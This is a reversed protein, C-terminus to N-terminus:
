LPILHVDHHFRPSRARLKQVQRDGRALLKERGYPFAGGFKVFGSDFTKAPTALTVWRSRDVWPTAIRLSAARAPEPRIWERVAPAEDEIEDDVLGLAFAFFRIEYRRANHEESAALEGLVEVLRRRQGATLEDLWAGTSEQLKVAVFPDVQEDECTDLWWTLDILLGTATRL